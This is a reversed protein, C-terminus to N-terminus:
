TAVEKEHDILSNPMHKRRWAIVAAEADEITDFRKFLKPAGKTRGQALYKNRETDWCVGRVGTASNVQAGSRNQNNFSRNVAQLHSPRVCHRVRCKHDIDLGPEPTGYEDRYSLIHVKRARREVGFEGYGNSRIYATWLWCNGLHPASAPAPGFKNVKSWFHAPLDSM